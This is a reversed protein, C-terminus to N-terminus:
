VDVHLKKLVLWTTAHDEVYAKAEDLDNFTESPSAPNISGYTNAVWLGGFPIGNERWSIYGLDRVKEAHLNGQWSKSKITVPEALRARHILGDNQWIFNM